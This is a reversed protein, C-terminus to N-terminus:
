IKERVLRGYNEDAQTFYELMKEQIRTDCKALDNGLNNILEEREWDEFNRFTEGAQGFNNQRDIKQRVLNAEYRPTYDNVPKPAEQLGGLISPEYTVHINQGEEFDTDFAM